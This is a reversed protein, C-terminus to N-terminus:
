EPADSNARVDWCYTRGYQDVDGPEIKVIGDLEQIDAYYHGDPIEYHTVWAPYQPGTM